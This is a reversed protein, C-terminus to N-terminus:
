DDAIDLEYREALYELTAILGYQTASNSAEINFLKRMVPFDLDIVRSLYEPALAGTRPEIGRHTLRFSLKRLAPPRHTGLWTKFRYKWPRPGDLAFGYDSPYDALRRDIRAIMRGQLLGLDKFDIPVNATNSIAAPELYPFFMPGFRQNIQADRGTWFRGRFKPYIEEVQSRRLQDKGAGIAERMAAAMASRYVVEDFGATFARPDYRSYFTSIVAGTSSPGDPMYFFNRYIEGLGGNLPVQGDVHRNLRDERDVGFDFLPTEVKWGDFALLNKETEGIFAEPDPPPVLSKDIVELPLGEAKCILRAIRVDEDQDKGYVFLWPRAGFKLLNALMLRSDFGGSFSLRIRDGYNRAIPEFVKEQQAIHHDAITDLTTLHDLPENEIPSPRQIVRTGGNSDISLISNAPLSTIGEVLTRRGFVAGNIVYEYCAQKDLNSALGLECLALFSNSWITGEANRYIKTAGLGDGLVHLTAEKYILIAYTGLMDRWSFDGAEFQDLLAPLAEPAAMGSSLLSGLVILTDGNPAQHITPASSPSTAFLAVTLSPFSLDTRDLASFAPALAKSESHEHQGMGLIFFGM